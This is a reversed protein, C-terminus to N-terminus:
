HESHEPALLSVVPILLGGTANGLTVILLPAIASISWTSSVTFYFMNAISHEFGLLIFIMVCLFLGIYGGCSNQTNQTKKFASAAIYMMLGCFIGLIFISVAGDTQKIHSYHEAKELFEVTSIRTLNVLVASFVTGVLNGLWIVVIKVIDKDQLLYGVKGTYLYLDLTYIVFLGITFLMSGIYKSDIMLYAMCGLSIMIGALFAKSFTQLHKNNM